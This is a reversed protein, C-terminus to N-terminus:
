QLLAFDPDSCPLKDAYQLLVTPLLWFLPACPLLPSSSPPDDRSASSLTEALTLQQTHSHGDLRARLTEARTVTHKAGYLLAQCLKMVVHSTMVPTLVHGAAHMLARGSCGLEQLAAQQVAPLEAEHTCAFQWSALSTNVQLTLTTKAKKSCAASSDPIQPTDQYFDELCVTPILLLMSIARVAHASDSLHQDFDEENLDWAACVAQGATFAAFLLQELSTPPPAAGALPIQDACRSCLQMVAACLRLAPVAVAARDLQQPFFCLSEKTLQLLWTSM